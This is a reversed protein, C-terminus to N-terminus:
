KRKGRRRRGEVGEVEEEMRKEESERRRKM